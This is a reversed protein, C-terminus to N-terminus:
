EHDVHGLTSSSQWIVHVQFFIRSTNVIEEPSNNYFLKTEDFRRNM